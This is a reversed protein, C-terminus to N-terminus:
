SVREIYVEALEIRWHVSRGNALRYRHNGGHGRVRDCPPKGKPSARLCPKWPRWFRFRM